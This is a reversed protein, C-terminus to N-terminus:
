SSERRMKRKVILEHMNYTGHEVCMKLVHMIAMFEVMDLKLNDSMAIKTTFDEVDQHQDWYQMFACCGRREMEKVMDSPECETLVKLHDEIGGTTIAEERALAADILTSLDRASVSEDFQIGLDTAFAKQRESAPRAKRTPKSALLEGEQKDSAVDAPSAVM